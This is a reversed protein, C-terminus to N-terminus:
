KLHTIHTAIQLHDGTIRAVFFTAVGVLSEDRAEIREEMQVSGRNNLNRIMLEYSKNLFFDPWLYGLM